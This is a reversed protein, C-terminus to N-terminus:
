GFHSFKYRYTEKKSPSSDHMAFNSSVFPSGSASRGASSPSRVNEEGFDLGLDSEAAHDGARYHREAKIHGNSSAVPSEDM